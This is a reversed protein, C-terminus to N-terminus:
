GQGEVSDTALQIYWSQLSCDRTSEDIEFGSITMANDGIWRVVADHLRPLVDVGTSVRRLLACTVNRRFERDYHETLSLYGIHVPQATISRHRPMPRSSEFLQAVRVFM